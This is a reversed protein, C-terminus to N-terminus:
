DPWSWFKYLMYASGRRYFFHKHDEWRIKSCEPPIPQPRGGASELIRFGVPEGVKVGYVEAKEIKPLIEALALKVADEMESVLGSHSSYEHLPRWGLGQIFLEVKFCKEAM